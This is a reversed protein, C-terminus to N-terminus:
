RVLATTLILGDHKRVVGKVFTSNSSRSNKSISSFDLPYQALIDIIMRSQDSYLQFVVM